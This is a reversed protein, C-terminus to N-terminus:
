KTGLNKWIIYVNYMAYVLSLRFILASGERWWIPLMISEIAQAVAVLSIIVLIISSLAFGRWAKEVKGGKFLKLVRFSFWLMGFALIAGAIGLAVTSTDIMPPLRREHFRSTKSM